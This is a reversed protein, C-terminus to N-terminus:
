RAGKAEENHSASEDEQKYCIDKHAWWYGKHCAFRPNTNPFHESTIKKGYNIINTHIFSIFYYLASTAKMRM